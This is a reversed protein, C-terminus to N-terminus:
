NLTRYSLPSLGTQRKFYKSFFFQDSFNLEDAVHGVTVSPDDLLAKAEAVVMEDILEGSTKGTVEKVTQSLYKPTVYLIDAYYNVQRHVRVHDRLLNMFQNTLHEKRGLTLTPGTAESRTSSTIELILLNFAHRVTQDYFAPKEKRSGKEKLLSLLAEITGNKELALVPSKAALVALAEMQRIPAGPGGALDPTFGLISFEGDESLGLHQVTANRAKVLLAGAPLTYTKLDHRITLEGRHVYILEADDTKFPIDSLNSRIETSHIVYFLDYKSGYREVIQHFSCQHIISAKVNECYLKVSLEM